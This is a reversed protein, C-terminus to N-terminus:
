CLKKRANDGTYYQISIKQILFKIVISLFIFVLVAHLFNQGINKKCYSIFYSMCTLLIFADVLTVCKQRIELVM